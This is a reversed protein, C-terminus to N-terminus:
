EVRTLNLSREINIFTNLTLSCSFYSLHQLRVFVGPYASMPYVVKVGLASKSQPLFYLNLRVIMIEYKRRSAIIKFMLIYIHRLRSM